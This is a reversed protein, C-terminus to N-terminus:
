KLFLNRAIHRGHLTRFTEEIIRQRAEDPINRHRVPFNVMWDADWVTQFEITRHVQYLFGSRYYLM